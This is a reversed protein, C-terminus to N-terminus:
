LPSPLIRDLGLLLMTTALAALPLSVLVATPLRYRCRTWRWTAVLAVIAAYAALMSVNALPSGRRPELSERITTDAEAGAAQCVKDSADASAVVVVRRRPLLGGAATVLTLRRGGGPAAFSSEGGAVKQTCVVTFATVPVNKAQVVIQDGVKL